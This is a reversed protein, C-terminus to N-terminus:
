RRAARRRAKAWHDVAGFKAQVSQQWAQRYAGFASTVEERSPSGVPPLYMIIGVWSFVPKNNNAERGAPAASLAASLAASQSASQSPLPGAPSMAAASSATWRQEIPCPAPIRSKDILALTASM